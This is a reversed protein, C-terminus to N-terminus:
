IHYSLFLILIGCGRDFFHICWNACGPMGVHIYMCSYMKCKVYTHVYEPRGRDSFICAPRTRLASFAKGKSHRLFPVFPFLTETERMESIKSSPITM